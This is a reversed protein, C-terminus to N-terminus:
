SGGMASQSSRREDAVPQVGSGLTYKEPPQSMEERVKGKRLQRLERVKLLQEVAREVGGAKALGEACRQASSKFTPNSFVQKFAEQVEDKYQMIASVVARQDAEPSPRDVKLGVGLKVAKHSNVIQDSFGPCVVVPTAHALSETLSNQGGHTLFVDVGVRLLDVQPLFPLCLANPPPALGELADPQNGVAVVLLVDKQADESGFAAFAGDWAAQCLEKGSLGRPKGDPGTPRGAWGWFPMDGTVVTGMSVLVVSRGVARAAKVRALAETAATEVPQLASLNGIARWGGPCDLLPGVAVLNAGKDQYARELDPSMDDQLDESTTTLTVEALAISYLYGPVKPMGATLNKCGYTDMLRRRADKSAPWSSILRDAEEYTLKEADLCTCIAGTIAGPGAFTNLAVSGLGLIEAAIGAEPSALPCSVVTDPKLQRLLRCLGPLQLEMMVYKLQWLALVVKEPNVGFENKLHTFMSFFDTGRGQYLEPEAAVTSHFIAGTHEIKAQLPEHCMYHVEHGLDVLRRALPLSPNLHGIYPPFVFVFRQKCDAM